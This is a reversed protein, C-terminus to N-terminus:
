LHVLECEHLKKVTAERGAGPVPRRARVFGSKGGSKRRDTSLVIRLPFYIAEATGACQISLRGRRSPFDALADPDDRRAQPLRAATIRPRRFRYQRATGLQDPRLNRVVS